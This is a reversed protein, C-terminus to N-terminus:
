EKEAYRVAESAQELTFGKAILKRFLSEREKDTAPASFGRAFERARQAYDIEEECFREEYKKSFRRKKLEERLRKAGWFKRKGEDLLAEYSREENLFGERHLLRVVAKAAEHDVAGYKGDILRFYLGQPTADGCSLKTMARRYLRLEEETM